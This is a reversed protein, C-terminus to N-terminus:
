RNQSASMAPHQLTRRAATTAFNAFGVKGAIRRASAIAFPTRSTQAGVITRCTGRFEASDCIQWPEAGDVTLSASLTPWGAATLSATDQSLVRAAGSYNAKAYMTLVSPAQRENGSVLTDPRAEYSRLITEFDASAVGYHEQSTSCTTTHVAGPVFHMEMKGKMVQDNAEGPSSATFVAHHVTRGSQVRSGSTEVEITLKGSGRASKMAERWTETTLEGAVERDIDAQSRGRTEPTEFYLGLCVGTYPSTDTEQHVLLFTIARRDPIDVSSWGDPVTMQFRGNPDKYTEANAPILLALSLTAVTLSRLM